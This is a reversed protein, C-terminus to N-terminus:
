VRGGMAWHQAQEYSRWLRAYTGARGLLTDHRGNEVLRGREFVLIQDTDRVTALRHAVMIVTKGRMLESLATILAAENEPDAHATAEDLM